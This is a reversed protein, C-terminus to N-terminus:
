TRKVMVNAQGRVTEDSKSESYTIDASANAGSMAGTVLTIAAHAMMKSIETRASTEKEILSAQISAVRGKVGAIKGQADMAASKVRSQAQAKSATADVTASYVAAAAGGNTALLTYYQAAMEIAAASAEVIGIAVKLKRDWRKSAFDMLISELEGAQVLMYKAHEICLKETTEITLRGKDIRANSYALNLAFLEHSTIENLDFDALTASLTAESAQHSATDRGLERAYMGAEITSNIGTSPISFSEILIVKLRDLLNSVYLEETYTFGNISPMSPINDHLTPPTASIVNTDVSNSVDDVTISTANDAEFNMDGISAAAATALGVAKGVLSEIYGTALSAAEGTLDPYYGPVWAIAYDIGPLAM